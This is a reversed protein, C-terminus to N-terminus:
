FIPGIQGFQSIQEYFYSILMSKEINLIIQM